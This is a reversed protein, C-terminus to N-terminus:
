SRKPEASRRNHQQLLASVKGQAEILEEATALRAELEVVCLKLRQNEVRALDTKPGRKRDKLGELGGRDRQGRWHHVLQSYLGRRRMIEGREVRSGAADLEALVEAKFVASYVKAAPRVEPDPRSVVGVATASM